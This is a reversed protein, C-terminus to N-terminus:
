KNTKRIADVLERDGQMNKKSFIADIGIIKPSFSSVLKIQDSIDKRNTAISLITISTDKLNNNSDKGAYRLDYIDFDNSGQIIPSLFEFKMPLFGLLLDVTIVLCSAIFAEKILQSKKM